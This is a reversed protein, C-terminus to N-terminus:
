SNHILLHCLECVILLNTPNKNQPDCDVHHLVRSWERECMQCLPFQKILNKRQQQHLYNYPSKDGDFPVLPAKSPM